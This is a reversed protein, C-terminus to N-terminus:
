LLEVDYSLYVGITGNVLIHVFDKGGEGKKNFGVVIGPSPKTIDSSSKSYCVVLDGIKM